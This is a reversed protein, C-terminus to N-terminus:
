RRNSRGTRRCVDAAREAVLRLPQEPGHGPAAVQEGGLDRRRFGDRRRRAGRAPEGGDQRGVHDAVRPQHPLVLLARELAELCVALLEDLREDGLVAAPDDVQRAVAGQALESGDDLRHGARHRDLLAHGPALQVQGRGLADPEPDADVDAVHDDLALVDVAVPDVDGGPQFAQGLWATDADGALHVVLDAALEVEAELVQALERELVDGPRDAGPAHGIGRGRRRPSHGAEREGVWTAIGLLAGGAVTRGFADDDVQRAEAPPSGGALGAARWAGSPEGNGTASCLRGCGLGFKTPRVASSSASRCASVAVPRLAMVWDRCAILPSPPM